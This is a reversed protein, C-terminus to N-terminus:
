DDDRDLDIVNFNLDFKVEMSNSLRVEYEYRDKEIVLVKADPYRENLFKQISAPVAKVPVTSQKCTLETWEGNKNFELKDGNTFIVDYTTDFWDKDVKALAVQLGSFHQKIFTQATKPLQEVTVPKDNDAMVVQMTCVCVLVLFLKKM